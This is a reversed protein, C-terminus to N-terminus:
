WRVEDPEMFAGARRLGFTEESAVVCVAGSPAREARQGANRSLPNSFARVSCGKPM